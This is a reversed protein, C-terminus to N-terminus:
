PNFVGALVQTYCIVAEEFTRFDYSKDVPALEGVSDVSGVGFCVIYPYKEDQTAEIWVNESM